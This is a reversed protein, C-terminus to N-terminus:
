ISLSPPHIWKMMIDIFNFLFSSFKKASFWIVPEANFKSKYEALWYNNGGDMIEFYHLGADSAWRIMEWNALDNPSVGKINSKANGRWLYARDRFILLFGGGVPNGQYRTIFIKFRQPHFLSYLHHIYALNNKTPNGREKNRKIVSEEIFQLDSENGDHVTMGVKKAKEISQRLKKHFNQWTKEHGNLLNLTYTYFPEVEYGCWKLSRSDFLGPALRIRAYKCKQDNFIFKDVLRQLEFFLSEKKDQKKRDYDVLLPGLYLLYTGYPPSYAFKFLGRKKIFVPYIAVLTSGKYALLPFFATNSYKETLKLWEWTHFITGHPSAEVVQNWVGSDNDDALRLEITM